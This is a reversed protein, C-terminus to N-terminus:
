QRKSVLLRTPHTALFKACGPGLTLSLDEITGEPARNLLLSWPKKNLEPTITLNADFTKNAVTNGKAIQKGTHDFVTITATEHPSPSGLTLLAHQANPEPLFYFLQQSGLFGIQEAGILCFYQNDIFLQAANQGTEIIIVHIGDNKAVHNLQAPNDIEAEGMDIMNRDPGFLSFRSGSTYSGLKRVQLRGQLNQGGQLLVAFHAQGRVTCAIKKAGEPMPQTSFPRATDGCYQRLIEDRTAMVPDPEERSQKWLDFKQAMIDHNARSFWKFYAAHDPQYYNPGEYFIWYGNTTQSIMVANKGSFEPDAGKVIPDIGGMYLIPVNKSKAHQMGRV